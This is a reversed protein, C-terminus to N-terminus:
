LSEHALRENIEYNLDASTKGQALHYTAFPQGCSVLCQCRALIGARELREAKDSDIERCVGTDTLQVQM